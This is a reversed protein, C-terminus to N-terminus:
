DGIYSLQKMIHGIFGNNKKDSFTPVANSKVFEVEWAALENKLKSERRLILILIQALIDSYKSCSYDDQTFSKFDIKVKEIATVLENSELILHLMNVEKTRYVTYTM